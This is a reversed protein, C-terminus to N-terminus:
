DGINTKKGGGAAPGILGYQLQSGEHGVEVGEDLGYDAQDNDSTDYINVRQPQECAPVYPLGGCSFNATTSDICPRDDGFSGPSEIDDSTTNVPRTDMSDAPGVDMGTTDEISNSFARAM